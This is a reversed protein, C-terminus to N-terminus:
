KTRWLFVRPLRTRGTARYLKQVRAYDARRRKKKGIHAAPGTAEDRGAAERRRARRRPGKRSHATGLELEIWNRYETDIQMKHERSLQGPRFDLLELSDWGVFYGQTLVLEQRLSERWSDHDRNSHEEAEVPLMAASPDATRPVNGGHSAGNLDSAM